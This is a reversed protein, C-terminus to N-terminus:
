GRRLVEAEPRQLLAKLWPPEFHRQVTIAYFSEQLDPVVRTSWWRAATCNTRCWWRPCCPWATRTARWCACCRWTTWRPACRTAFASSSACCISVPASTTTAGPCCCRCRRGPRRSLPVGPPEQAAPGVLSVPQRAIRRCRWPDDASATCGSTPCCSTWRTCGCARCCSPWAAPSCCWSSMTARWCRRDSLEGPLQTVAHGGRRHADGRAGARRGDRLLAMLETGSTFISEAYSLALQGAATLVLTRGQREFLAQGLQEELQKIQTSLASQSVHLRAAARTLNGEKAVAWFYHLHHYNLRQM